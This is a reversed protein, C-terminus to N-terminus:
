SARDVHNVQNFIYEFWYITMQRSVTVRVVEVLVGVRVHYMVDDQSSGNMYARGDRKAKDLEMRMLLNYFYTTLPVRKLQHTLMTINEDIDFDEPLGTREDEM